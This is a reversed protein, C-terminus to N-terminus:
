NLHAAMAPNSSTKVTTGSANASGFKTQHPLKQKVGRWCHTSCRAVSLELESCNMGINEFCELLRHLSWISNEANSLNNRDAAGTAVNGNSALKLFYGLVAEAARLM